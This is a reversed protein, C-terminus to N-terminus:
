AEILRCDSREMDKGIWQENIMRDNFGVGNNILLISGFVQTIRTLHLTYYRTM